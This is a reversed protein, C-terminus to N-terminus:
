AARRRDGVLGADWPLRVLDGAVSRWGPVTWRGLVTAACRAREARDLPASAVAQLLLATSRSYPFVTRPRSPDVWAAESARDGGHRGEHVRIQLLGREPVVELRGALSLAAPLVMEGATSVSVGGAGRAAATRMLGFGVQGVMRRLVTALRRHPAAAAMGDALDADGDKHHGVERDQSDVLVVRPVACVAATGADDLVEVSRRLWSAERVDDHYAWAFLPSRAHDLLWAANRGGGINAEHRVYSFRPDRAAVARAIEQTGDTSANDAVVVAFDDVDQRELAALARPLYREGDHVPVGITVRPAASM